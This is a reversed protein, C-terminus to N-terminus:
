LYFSFTSNWIASFWYTRILSLLLYKPKEASQFEPNWDTSDSHDRNIKVAIKVSISFLLGKPNQAAQFIAKLANPSNSKLNWDTSESDARNIQVDASYKEEQRVIKASM